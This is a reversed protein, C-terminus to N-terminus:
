SIKPSNRLHELENILAVIVTDNKREKALDTILTIFDQNDVEHLIGFKNKLERMKYDSCGVIGLHVVKSCGACFTTGDMLPSLPQPSKCSCKKYPRSM